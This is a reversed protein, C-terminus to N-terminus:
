AKNQRAKASESKGNKAAGSKKAQGSKQETGAKEKHKGMGNSMATEKNKTTFTGRHAYYKKLNNRATLWFSVALLALLIEPLGMFTLDKYLHAGYAILGAILLNSHFQYYRYHHDVVTNVADLNDQLTDGDLEPRKLGTLHNITDILVFRLSSVVMGATIAGITTNFFGILSPVTACVATDSTCVPTIPWLGSLGWVVVFGPLVYAILLGFHTYTIEKM